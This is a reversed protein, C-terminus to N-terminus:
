TSISPPCPAPFAWATSLLRDDIALPELPPEDGDLLWFIEVSGYFLCASHKTALVHHAALMGTWTNSPTTCLGAWEILPHFVMGVLLLPSHSKMQILTVTSLVSSQKIHLARSTNVTILVPSPYIHLAKLSPM